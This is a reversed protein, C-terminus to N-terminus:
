KRNVEVPTYVHQHVLCVILKARLDVPVTDPVQVDNIEGPYVCVALM